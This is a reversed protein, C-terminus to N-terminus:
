AKKCIDPLLGLTGSCHSFILLAGDTRSRNLFGGSHFLPIQKELQVTKADDYLNLTVGFAIQQTQGDFGKPINM